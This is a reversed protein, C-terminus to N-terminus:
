RLVGILLGLVIAATITLLYAGANRTKEAKVSVADDPAWTWLRKALDTHEMAQHVLFGAAVGLPVLAVAMLLRVLLLRLQLATEWWPSESPLVQGAHRGALFVLLLVLVAALGFVVRVIKRRQAPEVNYAASFLDKLWM